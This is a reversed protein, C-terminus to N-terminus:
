SLCSPSFRPFIYRQFDRNVKEDMNKSGGGGGAKKKEKRKRRKESAEAAEDMALFDRISPLSSTELPRLRTLHEEEHERTEGDETEVGPYDPKRVPSREDHGPPPSQAKDNGSEVPPVEDEETLIWRRSSHGTPPSKQSTKQHRVTPKSNTEEEEDDDDDADGLDVGGYDGAGAFIDFDDGLPEPEPESVIQTPQQAPASIEEFPKPETEDLMQGEVKHKKKREGTEKTSKGETKVKKKRKKDKEEPRGIPKFGIPKFKGQKKADELAMAEEQVTHKEEGQPEGEPSKDVQQVRAQKLENVLDQRTRKKPLSSAEIYVQELADDDETSDLAARARNQELLAM